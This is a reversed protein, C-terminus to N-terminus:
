GDLIERITKIMTEDDIPKNLFDTAGLDMCKKRTTHQIDASYIIVPLKIGKEALAELVEIGDMEPMLLDLIICDPKDSIIKEMAEVGDAAESIKFGAGKLIQGIKMRQLWSDDTILVHNM